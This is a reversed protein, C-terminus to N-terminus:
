NNKGYIGTIRQILLMSKIKLRYKRMYLRQYEKREKRHIKIGNQRLIKLKKKLEIKYWPNNILWTKNNRRHKEKNNLNYLCRYKKRKEKRCIKDCSKKNAKTTEFIKGCYDCVIIKTTKKDSKM